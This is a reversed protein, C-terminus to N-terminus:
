KKYRYKKFGLLLMFRRHEEKTPVLTNKVMAIVICVPFAISNILFVILLRLFGSYNPYRQWQRMVSYLGYLIAFILIFFYM